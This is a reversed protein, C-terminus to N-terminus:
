QWKMDAEARTEKFKYAFIM